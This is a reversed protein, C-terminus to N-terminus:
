EKFRLPLDLNHERLFKSNTLIESSSGDFVIQKNNIIICRDSFDYAMDLDHTAIIITKEMTKILDIFNNRNRPDLNSAPEDLILIRPDYSLVTALSVLKKEGFSLFHPIIEEVGGINVKELSLRVIEEIYNKDKAKQSDKKSLFNVLGFAVDDFVRTSFLQDNPDQFVFGIDERIDYISKKDLKKNFIYIEGERYKEDALGAINLLLTSKGAGNPGIISVKEGEVVEFSIKDLVEKFTSSGQDLRNSSLYKYSLVELAYYVENKESQYFITTILNNNSNIRKTGTNSLLFSGTGFTCKIQGDSFCKHGFLSAQQDGMICNVPIKRGFVSDKVTCGFVANGFSPKVVPLINESIGFVKLLDADWVLDNINFLMTRSANSVDTFHNNTLKFIIWSDLTGCAVKKDKDHKLLEPKNKLLWEIKTASFYPDIMLGTKDKVTNSLGSKILEKCRDSTRRDQWVILESLPKGTLKDWFMISERQNCIGLAKINENIKHNESITNRIMEEMVRLIEEPEEEVWGYYPYQQTIAKQKISIVEGSLNFVIFRISTTGLDIVGIYIKNDIKKSM